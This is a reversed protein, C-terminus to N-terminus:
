ASAQSKVPFVAVLKPPAISDFEDVTANISQLSASFMTVLLAMEPPPPSYPDELSILMLLEAM